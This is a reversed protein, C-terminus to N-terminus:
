GPWVPMVNPESTEPLTSTVTDATPDSSYSTVDSACAPGLAAVRTDRDSFVRTLTLEANMTFSASRHAPSKLTGAEIVTVPLTRASPMTVFLGPAVTAPVTVALPDFM